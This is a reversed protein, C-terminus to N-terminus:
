KRSVIYDANCSGHRIFKRVYHDATMCGVGMNQCAVHTKAVVDVRKGALRLPLILQERAFWTKGTGPAGLLTLSGGELVHAKAQAEDV